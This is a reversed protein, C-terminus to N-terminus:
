TEKKRRKEKQLYDLLGGSSIIQMAFKPIPIFSYTRGKKTLNNIVGKEVNIRVEDGDKVKKEIDHCEIALLGNNICNRYFIRAFSSAIIAKIGAERLAWVAHERSSGCGFNKGAILIDGERVKRSFDNDLAELAHKALEEKKDSNLYKAPIIEDTNIHDKRFVHAIGKM